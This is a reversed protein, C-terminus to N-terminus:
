RQEGCGRPQNLVTLECKNGNVELGIDKLKRVLFGVDELVREPTDGLTADDLYWVNFEAQAGQTIDDVALAFLRGM